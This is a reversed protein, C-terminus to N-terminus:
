YPLWVLSAKFIFIALSVIQSVLAFFPNLKIKRSITENFYGVTTKANLLKVKATRTLKESNHM